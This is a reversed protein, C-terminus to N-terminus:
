IAGGISAFFSLVKLHPHEAVISHNVHELGAIGPIMRRELMLVSKVLGAIGSTGELHGINSKITGIFLPSDASLTHSFADAIAGAEIPDITEM